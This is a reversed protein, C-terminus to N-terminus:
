GEGGTELDLGMFAKKYIIRLTASFSEEKKENTKKEKKKEKNKGM